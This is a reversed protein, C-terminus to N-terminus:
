KEYDEIKEDLDEAASNLDDNTPCQDTLVNRDMPERDFEVQTLSQEVVPVNLEFEATLTDLDCQPAVEIYGSISWVLDRMECLSNVDLDIDLGEIATDIEDITNSWEVAIMECQSTLFAFICAERGKQNSLNNFATTYESVADIAPQDCSDEVVQPDEFGIAATSGDEPCTTKLLDDVSLNPDLHM